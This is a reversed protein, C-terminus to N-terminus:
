KIGVRKRGRLNYLELQGCLGQLDDPHGMVVVAAVTIILVTLTLIEDEDVLVKPM